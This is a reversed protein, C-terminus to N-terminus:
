QDNGHGGEMCSSEEDGVDDHEDEPAKGEEVHLERQALVVPAPAQGQPLADTGDEFTLTHM